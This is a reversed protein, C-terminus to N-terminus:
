CNSFPYRHVVHRTTDFSCNHLIKQEFLFYNYFVTTPPDGPNDIAGLIKGGKYSADSRIHVEDMLINVHRDIQSFTTATQKLVDLYENEVWYLKKNEFYKKRATFNLM